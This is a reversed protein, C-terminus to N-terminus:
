QAAEVAMGAYDKDTLAQLAPLVERAFLTVNKETLTRPLTAFQLVALFDQFGLVRHGDVLKRRGTGPSGYLLIGTEILGEITIKGGQIAPRRVARM